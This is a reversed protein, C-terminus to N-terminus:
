NAKFAFIKENKLNNLALDTVKSYYQIINNLMYDM